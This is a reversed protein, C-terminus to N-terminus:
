AGITAVLPPIQRPYRASLVCLLDHDLTPPFQFSSSRPSCSEQLEPIFAVAGGEISPSPCTMECLRSSTKGRVSRAIPNVHIPSALFPLIPRHRQQIFGDCVATHATLKNATEYLLPPSLCCGTDHVGSAPKSVSVRLGRGFWLRGQLAVSWAPQVAQREQAVQDCPAYEACIQRIQLLEM